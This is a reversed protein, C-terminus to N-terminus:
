GRKVTKNTLANLPTKYLTAPIDSTKENCFYITGADTFTIGEVQWQKNNESLQFRKTTGNSFNNGSFNKLLLVFPQKHNKQYGILAVTSHLPNIAADTILGMTNFLAVQKAKYTGPKNPLVYLGCWGDGRRKTFMYLSDYVAIVAECDFNIHKNKAPVDEGEFTFNIVQGTVEEKKFQGISSKPVIVVQRNSRNGENDGVDCLYLNNADSSIAEVDAVDITKITLQQLINGDEALKYLVAHPGDSIAWLSGDAYTLGSIEKLKNPLKATFQDINKTNSIQGCGYLLLLLLCGVINKIVPM